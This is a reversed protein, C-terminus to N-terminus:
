GFKGTIYDETRKDKPRVFMSSAPGKEVLEGMYFFAVEGQVRAAQVPNHTVLIVTYSRSLVRLLEEIKMTSLPDLGSTPEDLLIVEPEVALVRALSLRQQQGGSLKEASSDLRDKVEDWIAASVLAKEVIEDLRKKSSIGQKRPGFAVNEYISMPLPVPLAFVMGVRRRLDAVDVGKGYVDEGNLLLSGTHHTGQVRDNLRNLAKLFTTKGSGTPGMITLLSNEPVSLDLSRLAEVKGYFFSFGEARVKPVQGSNRDEEGPNERM